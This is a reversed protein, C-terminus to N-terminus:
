FTIFFYFEYHSTDLLIPAFTPNLPDKASLESPAFTCKGDKGMPIEMLAQLDTDGTHMVPTM